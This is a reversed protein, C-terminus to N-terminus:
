KMEQVHTEIFDIEDPTLGYKAYLQQDIDPIPQSWDIDSNPTFDQLPVYLWKGPTNDQTVKLVGLLTRAFKSKVYKECSLVEGETSFGGISMFTVTAGDGPTGMIAEPLTEGLKGTGTAKPLFLKYKDLNPVDNIYIRKVYRWCRSNKQRGLIRIYSGTAPAAESYIEPYTDFTNSQLDREHGRSARGVLEPNESYLTDTYHYAFSTVIVSKLSEFREQHIVKQLIQNLPPFSTFVEIAGYKKERDRYTVAVGGKIEVNAFVSSSDPYYRMVKFHEDGLMKKNWPKPTYGANFLFRAPTILEVKGAVANAADMFKNYIPTATNSDGQRELQYPPNGIAFDWKIHKKGSAMLGDERIQSMTYPARARWDFVRCEVPGADEGDMLDFLTAQREEPAFPVLGTLGDMQWFNWAVTLTVARLQRLDLGHGWVLQCEDEMTMLVNMRALLLNDGQFEYGYCAQLARLAWKWWSAEDKTNERVVRLKRDLVGVRDPVPIAQGTATDYRSCVFPAEGCTIELRRSDVYRQWAKDGDFPIPETTAVWTTGTECNFVDRRGFWVEDLDNAMRNVLWAPTFVEALKRTRTAQAEQSKLVRPRVDPGDPALLADPTMQDRAECGPATAAYADTAWIISRGTSKDALLRALESRVPEQRLSALAALTGTGERM